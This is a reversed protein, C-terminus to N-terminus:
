ALLSTVSVGGIEIALINELRRSRSCENRVRRRLTSLESHRRREIQLVIKIGDRNLRGIKFNLALQPQKSFRVLGGARVVERM